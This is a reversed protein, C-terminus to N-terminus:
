FYLSHMPRVSYCGDECSTHLVCCSFFFLQHKNNSFLDKFHLLLFIHFYKLNSFWFNFVKSLLLGTSSDTPSAGARKQKKLLRSTQMSKDKIHTAHASHAFCKSLKKKLTVLCESIVFFTSLFVYSICM